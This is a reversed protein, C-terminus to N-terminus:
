NTLLKRIIHFMFLSQLSVIKSDNSQLRVIMNYESTKFDADQDFLKNSAQYFTQLDDIYYTYLDGENSMSETLLPMLIGFQMGFNGVHSIRTINHDQYELM